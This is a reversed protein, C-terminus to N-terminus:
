RGDKRETMLPTLLGKMVAAGLLTGLANLVVDGTSARGVGLVYQLEEIVASVAAGGAAATWLSCKPRRWLFFAGLPMFGVINGWFERVLLWALNKRAMRCYYAFPLLDMVGGQFFHLPLLGDRLVTLRLLIALYLGFLAYILPNCNM